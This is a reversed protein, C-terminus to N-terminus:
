EKSLRQTKRPPGAASSEPPASSRVTFADRSSSAAGESRSPASHPPVRDFPDQGGFFNQV